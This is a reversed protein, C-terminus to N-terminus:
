YGDGHDPGYIRGKLNSILEELRSRMEKNYEPTLDLATRADTLAEEPRGLAELIRSRTDLYPYFPVPEMRVARDILDLAKPVNGHAMEVWALNNLVVPDDGGIELAKELYNASGDLDAKLWLIEGLMAFAEPRGSDQAIADELLRLARDVQGGQIYISALQLRDDYPM